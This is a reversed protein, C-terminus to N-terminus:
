FTSKMELPLFSGVSKPAYPLTVSVIAQANMKYNHFCVGCLVDGSQGKAPNLGLLYFTFSGPSWLGSNEEEERWQELTVSWPGWCGDEEDILMRIQSTSGDLVKESASSAM